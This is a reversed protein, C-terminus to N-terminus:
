KQEAGTEDFGSKGYRLLSVAASAIVIIETITGGISGTLLNNILWIPSFVSMQLVRIRKGNGQWLALSEGIQEATVAVSMIMAVITGGILVESKGFTLVCCLAYCVEIVVLWPTKHMKEGRVLVIGRFLNVLNLLAATYNGMLFFHLSFMAGGLGKFMFMGRNGKIQFSAVNFFTAIIGITQAIIQLM